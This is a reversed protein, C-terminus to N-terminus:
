DRGEHNGRKLRYESWYKKIAAAANERKVKERKFAADALVMYCPVFQDDDKYRKTLFSLKMAFSMRSHTFPVLPPRTALFEHAESEGMIAVFCARIDERPIEMLEMHQKFSVKNAELKWAALTVEGGRDPIISSQGQRESIPSPSDTRLSGDSNASTSQQYIAAGIEAMDQWTWEHAGSPLGVVTEESSDDSGWSELLSKAIREGIERTNEHAGDTEESSDDSGSSRLSRPSVGGERSGAPGRPSSKEAASETIVKQLHDNLLGLTLGQFEQSRKGAEKSTEETRTSRGLGYLGYVSIALFRM